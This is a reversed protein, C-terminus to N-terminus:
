RKASLPVARRQFSLVGHRCCRTGYPIDGRCSHGETGRFRRRAARHSQTDRDPAVERFAEFLEEPTSEATLNEPRARSFLKSLFDPRNESLEILAKYMLHELMNQRRIDVIFAMRPKLAVIYTFNQDPGVGLYVGDPSAKEKLRGVVHQFLTENSIFNDSRFFGGPESFETVLRWFTEDSLQAPFEEAAILHLAGTFAFVALAAVIILRRGPFRNRM